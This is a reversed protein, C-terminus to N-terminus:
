SPPIRRQGLIGMGAQTGGRRGMKVKTESFSLAKRWRLSWCLFPVANSMSRSGRRINGFKGSGRKDREPLLLRAERMSIRDGDEIYLLVGFSSSVKSRVNGSNSAGSIGIGSICASSGGIGSTPPDSGGFISNLAAYRFHTVTLDIQNRSGAPM